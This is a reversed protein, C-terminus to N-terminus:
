EDPQEVRIPWEKVPRKLFDAGMQWLSDRHLEKPTKGRRTVWDAVNNCGEVWYWDSPATDEQIEGIRVAVFTNFGYSDKQIMAQVIQSDVIYYEKEFKFRMEEKLFVSLRKAMVAGCLESRVITMRKLPTIRNKSALLQSEFSGDVKEWRVYACAGFADNSGDSFVVLSPNGVAVIPKVCRAFSINRVEFLDRFFSTWEKIHEAPIVDDWGLLKADGNWLQRMLIKANLTFPGVLGMPDYVRNIQSLVMRKTLPIEQSLDELCLDAAIRSRKRKPSFNLRVDFRFVDSKPDWKMGLIKHVESDRTISNVIHNSKTALVDVEEQRREETAPNSPKSTYTWKKITFGGPKLLVDIEKTLRRAAEIDEVSDAIDDVYSNDLITDAAQPHSDRGMEATKRLATIAINSAPRDGFSVSSMVYISPEMQVNFDRWLFRHTHMDVGAIKVAHYMKRIDGTIAIQGERFRLLIGLLNNILDPGKAWFSNIVTGGCNASADFVPRCPTSESDDKWVAHHPAYYVPGKYEKIEQETLKHAVGRKQMDEIQAQYIKSHGPNRLLGKELSRLRALAFSYNDILEEPSRIWPYKALWYDVMHKLGDEIMKLEREEKLSYNKGGPSCHGCKCGGCKPNCNVGMAEMNYFDEIKIIGLSHILVHQIVKRTGEALLDHYGGLCKGFRNHMVLLHVAAQERVPHYGAYEFGMLVNIEGAPRQLDEKRVDKFLHLVGKVDIAKVNTSIRDIGYVQFEVVKRGKDLLPLTYVYSNMKEQNGGIKTVTLAVEKGQLGLMAAASFTILSITAGGDFFVTLPKMNACTSEIKMLQLLCGRTTNKSAGVSHFGLGEVSGPHLSNHHIKVCEDIGCKKRSRCQASRHGTCLCSYCLRNDRILEIKQSGTMSMYERCDQTSHSSVKHICCWPLKIRNNPPIQMNRELYNAGGYVMQEHGNNNHYNNNYAPNTSNNNNHNFNNYSSPSYCHNDNNTNNYNNNNNNYNYYNDHVVGRTYNARGNIHSQRRINDDDYEIARKRELLFGLLAPFKDGDEIRSDTKSIELAWFKRIDQPLKDEIISVATSNAMEKELSLRELDRYGSEVINVLGVFGKNDGENVPILWKIENMISDTFRSKKGYKEDLREWMKTHNDDVNRVVNLPEKSLCSKLVYAAGYEDKKYKPLVQREFDAKFRPYDRINGDFMPMKLKEHPIGSRRADEKKQMLSSFRASMQLVKDQLNKVWQIQVPPIVSLTSIYKHHAQRCVELQRKFDSHEEKIIELIPEDSTMQLDIKEKISEHITNFTSEEVQRIALYQQQKSQMELIVPKEDELQSEAVKKRVYVVKKEEADDFENDVITLWTDETELNGADGGTALISIYAEHKEQVTRYARKMDEMRGDVIEVDSGKDMLRILNKRSKTFLGKATARSRKTGDATEAM